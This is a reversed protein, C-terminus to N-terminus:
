LDCTITSSPATAVYGVKGSSCIEFYHGIEVPGWLKYNIGDSQYYYGYSLHDENVDAVNVGKLISGSMFNTVFISDSAFIGQNLNSVAPSGSGSPLPYIPYSQYAAYFSELATKYQTLESKRQVDRAQKRATSFASLALSGLIAMIAIVILLEILTFGNRRM